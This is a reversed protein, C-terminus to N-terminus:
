LSDQAYTNKSVSSSVVLRRVKRTFHVLACMTM